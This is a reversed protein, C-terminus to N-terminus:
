NERWIFVAIPPDNRRNRWDCCLVSYNNSDVNRLYDLLADREEYGNAGGYYIALAIVGGPKLLELASEIREMAAKVAKPINIHCLNLITLTIMLTLFTGGIYNVKNGALAEWYSCSEAVLLNGLVSIPVLLFILSVHVDFHKHWTMVYILTLCVSLILVRHM